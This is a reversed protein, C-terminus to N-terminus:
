GPLRVPMLLYTFETEPNPFMGDEGAEPLEDPEPILVAPRSPQTFGMVVRDTHIASLGDSLYGPNFAILLPEGVFACELVEEARGAEDGHASLVVQGESFDMRIQAGRDAVLSVRRIAERLPDIRVSALSSHQKPLLPRFKPFEADLLRTTTRRPDALIGLLGDAGVARGDSGDGFALTVPESSGADLSRATDALTKAPILLEANGEPIQDWEFTRVALRFRDTAAMTVMNGETEMRIGTLMPLTEDRGAAVAVQGIAETFLQPDITGTAAPVSPLAPYDELTMAPLEFRSKGCTVLVKTGDYHMDIPKNPLKSVIDSVLKGNVAFRGTESIEAAIRIQTSVEYDYGAIELGEDGAVFVMGRLIPQTPRTPLSRAVWAVADALDDKAARLRVDTQEM